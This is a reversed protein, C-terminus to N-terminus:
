HMKIQLQNPLYKWDQSKLLNALAPVIWCPCEKLQMVKQQLGYILNNAQMDKCCQISMGRKSLQNVM